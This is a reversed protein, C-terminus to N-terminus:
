KRVLFIVLLLILIVVAGIGLILFLKNSKAPPAFEPATKAAYDMVPATPPPPAPAPASPTVPAAVPQPAAAEAPRKAKKPLLDRYKEPDDRMTALMDSSSSAARNPMEEPEIPESCNPCFAKEVPVFEGCHRCQNMETM